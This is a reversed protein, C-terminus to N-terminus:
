ILSEGTPVQLDPRSYTSDGTENEKATAGGVEGTAFEDQM